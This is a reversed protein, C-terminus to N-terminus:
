FSMEPQLSSTAAHIREFLSCNFEVFVKLVSIRQDVLPRLKCWSGWDGSRTPESKTAGAEM